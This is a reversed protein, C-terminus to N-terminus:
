RSLLSRWRGRHGRGGVSPERVAESRQGRPGPTKLFESDKQFCGSCHPNSRVDYTPSWTVEGGGHDFMLSHFWRM